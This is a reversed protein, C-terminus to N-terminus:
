PAAYFCFLIILDGDLLVLRWDRDKDDPPIEVEWWDLREDFRSIDHLFFQQFLRLDSTFEIDDGGGDYYWVIAHFIDYQSHLDDIYINFDEAIDGESDRFFDSITISEKLSLELKSLTYM